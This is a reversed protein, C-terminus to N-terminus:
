RLLQTNSSLSRTIIQEYVASSPTIIVTEPTIWGYLLIATGDTNKIERVDRNAVFSSEFLTTFVDVEYTRPDMDLLMYTSLVLSAEWASMAYFAETSDRMTLIMYPIVEDNMGASGLQLSVTASKIEDPVPQIISLVEDASMFDNEGERRIFITKLTGEEQGKSLISKFQEALRSSTLADTELVETEETFVLLRPITSVRQEEVRKMLMLGLILLAGALIIIGGVLFFQNLPSRLSKAESEREAERDKQILDHVVSGSGTVAAEGLDSQLTRVHPKQPVSENENTKNQDDM